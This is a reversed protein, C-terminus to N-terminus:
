EVSELPPTYWSIEGKALAEEFTATLEPAKGGFRYYYTYPYLPEPNITIRDVNVTPDEGDRLKRAVIVTRYNKVEYSCTSLTLLQDNENVDVTDMQYMSRIRLQYVFNMFDSANEFDARTYDFLPEKKSDGNTIFVSFIKWQGKQYITDFSFSPREKYFDLEKYNILYHFMNDTSTMNHGHITLNKSGDEASGKADIFLSGAKLEQGEIDRTLYYEPDDKGSQMVVYNINTDPITIWGKVDENMALLDKFQLLRGQGDRTPDVTPVPPVTIGNAPTSEEQTTSPAETSTMAQQSSAYIAETKQISQNIRYPTIFVENIFLGAFVVFGAAFVVRLFQYRNVAKLSGRLKKIVPSILVTGIGIVKKVDFAKDFTDEKEQSEEININIEEKVEEVRKEDSM